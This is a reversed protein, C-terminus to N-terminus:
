DSYDCSDYGSVLAYLHKWSLNIHLTGHPGTILSRNPTDYFGKLVELLLIQM